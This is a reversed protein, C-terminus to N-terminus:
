KFCELMEERLKLLLAEEEKVNWEKRGRQVRQPIEGTHTRDAPGDDHLAGIEVGWSECCASKM